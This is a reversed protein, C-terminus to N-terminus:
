QMIETRKKIMLNNKTNM